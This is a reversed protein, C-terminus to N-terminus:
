CCLRARGALLVRVAPVQTGQTCHRLSPPVKFIMQNWGGGTTLWRAKTDEASSRVTGPLVPAPQARFASSCSLVKCSHPPVPERLRSHPQLVARCRLGQEAREKGCRPVTAAGCPSQHKGGNQLHRLVQQVLGSHHVLLSQVPSGQPHLGLQRGSGPAEGGSYMATHERQIGSHGEHTRKGWCGRGREGARRGRTPNGADKLTERM